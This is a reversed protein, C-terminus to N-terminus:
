RSVVGSISARHNSGYLLAERDDQRLGAVLTAPRAVIRVLSAQAVATVAYSLEIPVELSSFYSRM